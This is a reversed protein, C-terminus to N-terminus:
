LYETDGRKPTPDKAEAKNLLYGWILLGLFFTVGTGWGRVFQGGFIWYLFYAGGMGFVGSLTWDIAKKM